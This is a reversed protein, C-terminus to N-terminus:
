VGLRRRRYRSHYSVRSNVAVLLSKINPMAPTYVTGYLRTISPLLRATAFAPNKLSPFASGYVVECALVSWSSQRYQAWDKSRREDTVGGSCISQHMSKASGPIRSNPRAPGTTPQELWAQSPINVPPAGLAKRREKEKPVSGIAADKGFRANSGAGAGCSDMMKLVHLRSELKAEIRAEAPVMDEVFVVVVQMCQMSGVLM